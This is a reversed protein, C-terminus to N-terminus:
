CWCNPLRAAHSHHMRTAIAIKGPVSPWTKVLQACAYTGANTEEIIRSATGIMAVAPAATTSSSGTLASWITPPAITSTAIPVMTAELRRRSASTNASLAASLSAGHDGRREIMRSDPSSAKNSPAGRLSAPTGFIACVHSWLGISACPHEPTVPTVRQVLPPHGHATVRGDPEDDCQREDGGGGRVRRRRGVVLARRCRRDRAER